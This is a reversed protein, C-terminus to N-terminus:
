GWLGMCMSECHLSTDPKPIFFRVDAIGWPGNPGRFVKSKKVKKSGVYLLFIYVDEM